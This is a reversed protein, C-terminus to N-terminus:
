TELVSRFTNTNFATTASSCWPGRFQALHSEAIWGAEAPLFPVLRLEAESIESSSELAVTCTLLLSGKQAASRLPPILYLFSNHQPLRDWVRSPGPPTELGTAHGRPITKMIPSFSRLAPGVMLASPDALFPPGVSIDQVLTPVVSCYKIVDWFKTDVLVPFPMDGTVLSHTDACRIM